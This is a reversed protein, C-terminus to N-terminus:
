FGDGNVITAYATYYVTYPNYGSVYVYSNHSSLGGLKGINSSYSRVFNNNTTGPKSFGLESTADGTKVNGDFYNDVYKSSAKMTIPSGTIPTANSTDYIVAALMTGHTYASGVTGSYQRPKLGFIGTNNKTSSNNFGYINTTSDFDPIFTSLEFGYNSNILTLIAGYETAKMLHADINNPNSTENGNTSDITATLGLTGNAAEMNRAAIFFEDQKKNAAVIGPRSQVTAKVNVAFILIAIFAFSTKLITKICKKM